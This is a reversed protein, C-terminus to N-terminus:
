SVLRRMRIKRMGFVFLILYVIILKWNLIMGINGVRFYEYFRRFVFFAFFLMFYSQTRIYRYIIISLKSVIFAMVFSMLFAPIYGVYSLIITLYSGAFLYGTSIMDSAYTDATVLYMVRAIGYDPNLRSLEFSSLGSFLENTFGNWDAHIEGITWLRDIGWFTHNQLSFIRDLLYQFPNLMNQSYKSYCLYLIVGVGVLALVIYKIPLKNNKKNYVLFAAYGMIFHLVYDYLGYFKNNLLLQIGILILFTGIYGNKNKKDTNKGTLLGLMLAFFPFLYNHITSALPLKSYTAYFSSYNM